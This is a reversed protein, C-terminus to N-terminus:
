VADAKIGTRMQNTCAQCIGHSAEMGFSNEFYQEIPVWEGDHELKKCWACIRLFGELHYLRSVLRKTLIMVPMAVVLVIGTELFCERWNPVYHAAGIRYPLDSMENLWSFVIILLFGLGQYFLVKTMRRQTTM